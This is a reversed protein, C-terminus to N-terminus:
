ISYRTCWNHCKVSSSAVAKYTGTSLMKLLKRARTPDNLPPSGEVIIESYPTADEYSDLAAYERRVVPCWKLTVAQGKVREM